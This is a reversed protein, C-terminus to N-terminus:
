GLGWEHLRHRANASHRTEPFQEVVQSLIQAASMRDEKDEDYLEALRFLFYAADRQDWVNHELVHRLTEIAADPDQFTDRQIKVIEVWPLRNTPDVKAAHEFAKIAAEYEGQAVLAMEGSDYVAHTFKHAIAPLLYVVFLVGVYGATLFSMLMGNFVTEGEEARKPAVQEKGDPAPDVQERAPRKADKEAAAKVVSFYTWGCILVLIAVIHLLIRV